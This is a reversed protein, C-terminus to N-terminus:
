LEGGTNRVSQSWARVGRESTVSHRSPWSRLHAVVRDLPLERRRALPLQEAVHRVVVLDSGSRSSYHKVV